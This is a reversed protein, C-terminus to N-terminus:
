HVILFLWAFLNLDSYLKITKIPMIFDICISLIMKIPCDFAILFSYVKYMYKLIVPEILFIYNLRHNGASEADVIFFNKGTFTLNSLNIFCFCLYKKILVM